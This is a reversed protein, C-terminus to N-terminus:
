KLTLIMAIHEIGADMFTDGKKVFGLNEYFGSAQIQADLAVSTIDALRADAIIKEMLLKAFGHGRFAKGTAVREVHWSNSQQDVRATTVPIMHKETDEYYGVYHMRKDDQNDYELAIPVNQETIFVADRLRQADKYLDSIGQEHKIYIDM